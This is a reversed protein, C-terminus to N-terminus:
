SIDWATSFGSGAESQQKKRGSKLTAMALSFSM